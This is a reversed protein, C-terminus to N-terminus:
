RNTLTPALRELINTDPTERRNEREWQVRAGRIAAQECWARDVASLGQRQRRKAQAQYIREAEACESCPDELRRTHQNFGAHTGHVRVRASDACPRCLGVPSVCGCVACLTRDDPEPEMVPIRLGGPKVIWTGTFEDSM